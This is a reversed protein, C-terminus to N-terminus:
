FLHQLVLSVQHVMEIEHRVWHGYMLHCGSRRVWWSQYNHRRPELVWGRWDRDNCVLKVLLTILRGCINNDFSLFLTEINVRFVLHEKNLCSVLCWGEVVDFTEAPTWCALHRILPRPERASKVFQALRYSLYYLPLRFLLILCFFDFLALHHSLDHDGILTLLWNLGMSLNDHLRCCRIILRHNNLRGLWNLRIFNSRDVNSYM